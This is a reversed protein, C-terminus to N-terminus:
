VQAPQWSMGAAAATVTLESTTNPAKSASDAVIPTTQAHTQSVFGVPVAAPQAYSAAFQEMAAQDREQKRREAQAKQLDALAKNHAREATTVYRMMLRMRGAEAKDIFLNAMAADPDAEDSAAIRNELFAREVGYCRQLRWFSQAVQEVLVEEHDNAPKYSDVFGQSIQQYEEASEHPLVVTKSTLGHAVANFRVSEKGEQSSPGTSAQANTRNALARATASM